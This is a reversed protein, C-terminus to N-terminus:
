AAPGTESGTREDAGAIVLAGGRTLTMALESVAADFACSALQLVRAGPGINLRDAERAEALSPLGRHPVLVGKPRGTSGSTHILYAPHEGLLPATM